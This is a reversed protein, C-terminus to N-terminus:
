LKKGTLINQFVNYWLKLFGIKDVKERSILSAERIIKNGDLVTVKGLVENEKIPLNISSVEVKLDYNISRDSKKSLISLDDKLYLNIKEKTGKDINIETIVEDKSKLLDVKYLNFGYDLLNSTEENRIAGSPEGLVVALLRMSDRKATVAMCYGANDTFGTKLGDAGEYFRVLKNTNVLWFKNSTDQRLYDEYVSSFELISEHRLLEKAIRAMDSATSYHNEEDLGTSNAFHTNNLGLSKVKENMLNVFATETGAIREAMAVVADNASAMTIGKMLDRVTMEEGTQLYIQSGGMGSANSSVKIKEDWSLNGSEVNELIIIQAVMKTMSAVALKEDINKEYLIEGSNVEILVGSKANTLLNNEVALVNNWMFFTIIFIFIGKLVKKM